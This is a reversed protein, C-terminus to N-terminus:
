KKFRDMYEVYEKLSESMEPDNSHEQRFGLVGGHHFSPSTTHSPDQRKSWIKWQEQFWIKIKDDGNLYLDRGQNRNDDSMM